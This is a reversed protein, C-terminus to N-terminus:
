KRGINILGVDPINSQYKKFVHKLKNLVNNIMEFLLTLNISIINQLLM